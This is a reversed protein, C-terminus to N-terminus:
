EAEAAPASRGADTSEGHHKGDPTELSCGSFAFHGMASVTELATLFVHATKRSAGFRPGIGSPGAYYSGSKPDYIRWGKPVDSDQRRM